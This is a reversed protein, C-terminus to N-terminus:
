RYFKAIKAKIEAKMESSLEYPNWVIYKRRRDTTFLKNYKKSYRIYHKDGDYWVYFLDVIGFRNVYVGLTYDDEYDIDYSAGEYGERCIGVDCEADLLVDVTIIHDFAGPNDMFFDNIEVETADGCQRKKCKRIAADSEINDNQWLGSNSCRLTVYDESKQVLNGDNDRYFTRKIDGEYDVSLHPCGFCTEIKIANEKHKKFKDSGKKFIRGCCSCEVYNKRNDNVISIINCQDIRDRNVYFAGENYKATEWVYQENGYNRLLIKM